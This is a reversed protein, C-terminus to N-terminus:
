VTNWSDIYGVMYERHVLFCFERPSKEIDVAQALLYYLSKNGGEKVINELDDHFTNHAQKIM